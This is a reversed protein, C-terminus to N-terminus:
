PLLPKTMQANCLPGKEINIIKQYLFIGTSGTKISIPEYTSASLYILGIAKEEGSVWPRQIIVLM